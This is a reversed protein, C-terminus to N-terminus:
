WMAYETVESLLSLKLCARCQDVCELWTESQPPLQSPTTSQDIRGRSYQTIRMMCDANSPYIGHVILWCELYMLHLTAIHFLHGRAMSSAIAGVQFEPPISSHWNRLMINLRHAVKSSELLPMMRAEPTCLCDYVQGQIHALQARTRLHNLVAMGDLTCVNGFGDEPSAPPLDVHINNDPQSSPM